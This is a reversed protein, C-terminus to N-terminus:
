EDFRRLALGCAVMLSSADALLRAEVIRDSLVM